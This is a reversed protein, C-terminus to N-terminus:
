VIGPQGLVHISLWGRVGWFHMLSVRNGSMPAGSSQLRSNLDRAESPIVHLRRPIVHLRRPIVHLRRPIVHLRRPIVHTTMALPAFCDTQPSQKTAKPEECHRPRNAVEPYRIKYIVLFRKLEMGM